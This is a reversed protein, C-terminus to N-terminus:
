VCVCVRVPENGPILEIMPEILFFFYLSMTTRPENMANQM